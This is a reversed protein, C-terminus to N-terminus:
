LQKFYEDLKRKISYDLYNGQYTVIAGGIITPDVTIEIITTNGFQSKGYQSLKNVLQQNAPAAITVSLVKCSQVAKELQELFLKLVSTNGEAINNNELVMELSQFLEPKLKKAWSMISTTQDNKYYQNLLNNIEEVVEAAENTTSLNTLFPLFFNADQM